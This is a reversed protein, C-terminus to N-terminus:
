LLDFLSDTNDLQDISLVIEMIRDAMINDYGSWDCLTKYKDILEGHTLPNEPEGKPIEVTQQLVSNDKLQISVKAGRKDPFLSTLYVDSLVFVMNTILKVDPDNILDTTFQDMGANGTALTVAVSFPTSMKASSVNEIITHDHGGVALFYSEVDIKKIDSIKFSYNERLIQTAEIAPHCHRCAAYPKVYANEIRLIDGTNRKIREIVNIISFSRILGRKGGLIDKPGDFGTLAMLAAQYGSVAANASNYPKLMSGEDIVELLGSSSTAAASIAIKLQDANFDLAFGIAVAAGISGCIGTAHYGREKLNPQMVRSIRVSAEYGLIISNLFKESPIKYLQVVPLLASFIPSGPHMMAFREGDDMEAVHSNLGNLLIANFVSSSLCTGIIKCYIDKTNSKSLFEKNKKKLISAGAITVGIYDLLKYKAHSIATTSILNKQIELLDDVLYDTINM